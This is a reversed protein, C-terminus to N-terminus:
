KKVAKLYNIKYGMQSFKKEYETEVNIVDENHLDLSAEKIIYGYESLSTLSYAYLGINDTKMIITKDNKFADDYAKLFDHSTLRRNAHRKKPWPDSFNLYICEIEHDFINPLEEANINIIRLNSPINENINKIARAVVGSMHEIGIFNIDPYMLAMEKIFTGKGMGIEVRIPNSNNFEKNWLGKLSSPDSILYDCNNILENKNKLNRLRMVDGSEFDFM